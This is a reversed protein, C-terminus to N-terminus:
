PTPTPTPTPREVGPVWRGRRQTIATQRAPEVAATGVFDDEVDQMFQLIAAERCQVKQALQGAAGLGGNIPCGFKAVFANINSLNESVGLGTVTVRVQQQASGGSLGIFLGLAVGLLSCLIARKM